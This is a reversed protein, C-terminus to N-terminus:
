VISSQTNHMFRLLAHNAREIAVTLSQGADLMDAFFAALMEDNIVRIQNQPGVIQVTSNKKGGLDALALALSPHHSKQVIGSYVGQLGLPLYGTKQHWRLQTEPLALYQFFLALSKYQMNTLGAVAFIAGGGVVNAHRTQSVSTDLPLEAMKLPFSVTAQLSNYAGSSQSFLPCRGSTFLVTADDVPGGYEFYHAKQWRKLRKLHAVLQPSNFVAEGQLSYTPLGHIAMFSEVLIWAPYASTYACARGSERIKKALSELDVWTKPFSADSVGLTSLLAANYYIVPVSLNFPMAILKHNKSYLAMAAPIFDETPLSIHQEQMLEDVPKIVGAPQIMAETGVEFVQVMAPAKHARFAAAFSALTEIYSGKYVPILKCPTASSNFVKAIHNLEEGAHGSMAHWLVIECSKAAINFNLLLLLCFIFAQVTVRM